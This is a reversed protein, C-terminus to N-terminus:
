TNKNRKRAERQEKEVERIRERLYKVEERAESLLQKLRQNSPNKRVEEEYFYMKALAQRLLHRLEQLQQKRSLTALNYEVDGMAANFTKVHIYRQDVKLGASWILAAVAAVATITTAYLKIKEM